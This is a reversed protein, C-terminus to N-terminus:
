DEDVLVFQSQPASCSPCPGLGWGNRQKLEGCVLCKWLIERQDAPANYLYNKEQYNPEQSQM